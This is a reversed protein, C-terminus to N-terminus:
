IILVRIELFCCVQALSMPNTLEAALERIQVCFGFLKECFGFFLFCHTPVPPHGSDHRPSRHGLSEEIADRVFGNRHFKITKTNLTSNNSVYIYYQLPLFRQDHVIVGLVLILTLARRKRTKKKKKLLGESKSKFTCKVGFSCFFSPLLSTM